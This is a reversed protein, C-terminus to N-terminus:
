YDKLLNHFSSFKTSLFRRLSFTPFTTLLLISLVITTATSVFTYPTTIVATGQKVGVAEMALIMGSTNSNVALSIIEDNNLHNEERNKYVLDKNSKETLAQSFKKEFELAYKGTTLWGSRLIELVIQEEQQTISAKHFPVKMIKELM